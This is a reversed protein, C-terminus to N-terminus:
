CRNWVSLVELSNKGSASEEKKMSNDMDELDLSGRRSKKHMSGKNMKQPTTLNNNKEDM